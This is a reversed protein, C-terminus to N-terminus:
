GNPEIETGREVGDDVVATVPVAALLCVLILGSIGMKRM